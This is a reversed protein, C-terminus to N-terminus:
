NYGKLEKLISYMSNSAKSEIQWSDTFFVQSTQICVKFPKQLISYGM